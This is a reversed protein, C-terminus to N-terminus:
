NSDEQNEQPEEDEDQLLLEEDNTDKVKKIKKEPTMIIESYQNLPDDDILQPTDESAQLSALKEM